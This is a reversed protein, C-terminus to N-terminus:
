GNGINNNAKGYEDGRVIKIKGYHKKELQLLWNYSKENCVNDVIYIEFNYGCSSLKKVLVKICHEFAEEGGYFVLAIAKPKVGKPPKNALYDFWFFLVLTTIILVASSVISCLQM